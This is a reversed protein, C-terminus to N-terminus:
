YSIEGRKIEIIIRWICTSNDYESPLKENFFWAVAFSEEGLDAPTTSSSLCIFSSPFNKGSCGDTNDFDSNTYEFIIQDLDALVTKTLTKLTAPVFCTLNTALYTLAIINSVFPNPVMFGHSFAHYMRPLATWSGADMWTILENVGYFTIYASSPEPLLTLTIRFTVSGTQTYSAFAARCTMTGVSAANFLGLETIAIALGSLQLNCQVPDKLCQLSM